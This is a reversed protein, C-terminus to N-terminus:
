TTYYSSAFAMPLSRVWSGLRIAEGYTVKSRAKAVARNATSALFIVEENYAGKMKRNYMFLLQSTIADLIWENEIILPYGEDDFPLAQYHLLLTTDSPTTIIHPKEIKYGYNEDFSARDNCIDIPGGINPMVKQNTDLSRDYVHFHSVPKDTVERVGGPYLSILDCPLLGKHNTIKIFGQKDILIDRMGLKKLTRFIWEMAIGDSVHIDHDDELRQIITKASVRM